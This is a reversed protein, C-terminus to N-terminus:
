NECNIVQSMQHVQHHVKELDTTFETAFDYIAKVFDYRFNSQIGLFKLIEM